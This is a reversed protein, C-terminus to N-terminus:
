FLADYPVNMHLKHFKSWHHNLLLHQKFFFNVSLRIVCFSWDMLEGQAEPEPSSFRCSNRGRFLISLKNYDEVPFYVTPMFSLM